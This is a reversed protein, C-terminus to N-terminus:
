ITHERKIHKYNSTHTTGKYFLINIKSLNDKYQSYQFYNKNYLLFKFYTEWHFDTPLKLAGVFIKDVLM